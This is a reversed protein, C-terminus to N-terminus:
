GAEVCFLPSRTKTESSNLLKVVAAALILVLCGFGGLGQADRASTIHQRWAAHRECRGSDSNIASREGEREGEGEDGGM